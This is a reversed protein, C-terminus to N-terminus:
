CIHGNAYMHMHGHQVRCMHNICGMYNAIIKIIDLGSLNHMDQKIHHLTLTRKITLLGLDWLFAHRFRSKSM